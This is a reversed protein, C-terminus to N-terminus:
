EEGHFAVLKRLVDQWIQKNEKRFYGFHGIRGLPMEASKYRAFTIPQKSGVNKWFNKVNDETCIEDDDSTVVHIPLEFNNFAGCPVSKGYFKPSFFLQEEKCWDGWERAFGSPLDEMLRFKSAPVYHFIACSIPAFYRFFFNAKIRYGLPMYGFYGASVAISILAKVAHCNYALGFQQGGASHGICYVPLDGSMRRAQEIAAPIDYHGIDSYTYPSKVLSGTKSECFGRYNWLFVHFDNAALYHAFPIYFSTRTATGPNLLVVGKPRTAEILQGHLLVQDKTTFKIHM